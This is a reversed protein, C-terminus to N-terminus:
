KGPVSYGYQLWTKRTDRGALFGVFAAALTKHQSTSVVAANQAIPAHLKEPVVIYPDKHDDIVLSLATLAVDANGTQAFELAQAINEAQVVKAQAGPLVQSATLAEVAARGYPATDPNAISIRGYAPRALDAIGRPHNASDARSWVVLKGIAYERVTTADVLGSKALKEITATDAAVFADDPQGNQVQLALLKTAGYTVVVKCHNKAEFEGILVKDFVNQLNAAAAVTITQQDSHCLTPSLTLLAGIAVWLPISRRNM